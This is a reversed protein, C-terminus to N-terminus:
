FNPDSLATVIYKKKEVNEPTRHVSLIYVTHNIYTLVAGLLPLDRRRVRGQGRNTGMNDGM